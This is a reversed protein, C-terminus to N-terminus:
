RDRQRVLELALAEAESVKDSGTFGEVVKFEHDLVAMFPINGNAVGANFFGQYALQQEDLVVPFDARYTDAWDRPFPKDVIFGDSEYDDIVQHVILVGDLRHEVWMEQSGEAVTQCPECWGAVFDLIIVYGYFTYFPVPNGYQDVSLFDPVTDGIGYGNGVVGAALAEDTFDPWQGSGFDWNFRNDPDSGANEEQYDAWGDGDNDGAYGLVPDYEVPACGSVALAGVLGFCWGLSKM